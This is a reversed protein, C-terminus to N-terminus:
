EGAILVMDHKILVRVAEAPVGPLDVTIQVSDADVSVDIAPRYEGAACAPGRSRELDEFLRRLDDAFDRVETFLM